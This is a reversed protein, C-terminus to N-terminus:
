TSRPRSVRTAKLFTGCFIRGGVRKSILTLQDDEFFIDDVFRKLNLRAVVEEGDAGKEEIEILISKKAKFDGIYREINELFVEDEIVVSYIKTNEVDYVSTIHDFTMLSGRNLDDTKIPYSFTKGVAGLVPPESTIHITANVFFNFSKEIVVRGDTIEVDAISFDLNEETPVWLLRGTSPDIRMGEPLSIPEYRIVDFENPDEVQFQFELTDGLSVLTM